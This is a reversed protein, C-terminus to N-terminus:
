SKKHEVSTSLQSGDGTGYIVYFEYEEKYFVTGFVGCLLPKSKHYM